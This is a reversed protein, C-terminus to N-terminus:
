EKKDQNPVLEVVPAKDPYEVIGYQDLCSVGCAILKLVNELIGEADATTVHVQAQSVFQQMLAVFTSLNTVIDYLEEDIQYGREKNIAKAIDLPLHKLEIQTFETKFPEM